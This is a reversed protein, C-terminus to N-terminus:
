TAARATETEALAKLELYFPRHHALLDRLKPEADAAQEFQAAIEDETDDAPPRIGTSELVDGHWGAVDQWDQPVEQRSWDFARDIFALDIRQWFARMAAVPDRQIVEAELVPPWAGTTDKLWRVHRWQAEIGIEDLTLDPDLRHYSLIAKRPDRILFAHSFDHALAPHEFLDPVVYFSMDKFFVPGRAAHAMLDDVAEHFAVPKQPDIEFHPLDRVARHVYYNYLFPEHICTLDGRERMIRETATSM